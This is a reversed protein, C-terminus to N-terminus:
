VYRKTKIIKLITLKVDSKTDSTYKIERWENTDPIVMTITKKECRVRFKRKLKIFHKIDREIKDSNDEIDIKGIIKSKTEIM